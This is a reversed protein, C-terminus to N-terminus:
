GFLTPGTAANGRKFDGVISCTGSSLDPNKCACRKVAIAYRRAVNELRRFIRERQERPLAIVSSREAHIAMRRADAFAELCRAVAAHTGSAQQLRTTVAPRLFLVSAAIDTVGADAAARCLEGLTQEDDTLGPLIPDIRLQTKIGSETLQKMQAVRIAAPAARPEFTGLLADDLTILGIQARVLAANQRLLMMHREPIVGKTLFAIGIGRALIEQLVHYALDLVETVSQFLDSAPSFYVAVPKHKKRLLERRLLELTNEYVHVTGEGPYVRYGRTYCYLCGHACGMTLNMTPIRSLCALSSPTIVASKRQTSIVKVTDSRRGTGEQAALVGWPKENEKFHALKEAYLDASM